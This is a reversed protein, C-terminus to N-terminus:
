GKAAARQTSDKEVKAATAVLGAHKAMTMQVDLM